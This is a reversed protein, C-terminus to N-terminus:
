NTSTSFDVDEVIGAANVTVVLVKRKVNFSAFGTQRTESYVYVLADGSQAKIMPYVFIGGPRGILRQVEDRTTKGKIIQDVKGDEFDTHDAAWSSAFEHGVLLNNHFHFVQARAPTVGPRYPTGGAEAYAYSLSSVTQGNRLGQGQRWPAGFDRIVDAQTTKGLSLRSPDPRVFNTGACGSLIIAGALLAAGLFKNM